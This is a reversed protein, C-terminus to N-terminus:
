PNNLPTPPPAKRAAQSLRRLAALGHPPALIERLLIADRVANGYTRQPETRAIHGKPRLDEGFRGLIARRLGASIRPAEQPKAERALIAAALVISPEDTFPRGALLDGKRRLVKAHRGATLVLGPIDTICVGGLSQLPGNLLPDLLKRAIQMALSEPMKLVVNPSAPIRLTLTPDGEVPAEQDTLETETDSFGHLARWRVRAERAEKDFGMHELVAATILVRLHAPPHAAYSPGDTAATLVSEPDDPQAFVHLFGALAAPGLTLTTYVDCWIEQRWAVFPAHISGQLQGGVVQILEGKGTWGAITQLEKEFEPLSDVVVHGVEHALAPWRLLDAEFDDEVLVLPHRPSILGFIVAEWDPRPVPACIVERRPLPLDLASAHERLPELLNDAIAEADSLLGALDGESRLALVAGTVQTAVHLRGLAATWAPLQRATALTLTDRLRMLRPGLEETAVQGLLGARPGLRTAEEAIEALRTDIVELQKELPELIDRALVTTRALAPVREPRAPSPREPAAPPNPRPPAESPAAAEPPKPPVRQENRSKVAKLAIQLLVYLIPLALKVLTGLDFDEM